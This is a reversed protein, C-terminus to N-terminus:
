IVKRPGVICCLKGDIFSGAAQPGHAGRRRECWREVALTTLIFAMLKFCDVPCVRFIICRSTHLLPERRAAHLVAIGYSKVQFANQLAESPVPSDRQATQAQAQGASGISNLKLAAITEQLKTCERRLVAAEEVKHMYATEMYKTSKKHEEDAANQQAAAAQVAQLQAHRTQAGILAKLEQAVRAAKEAASKPSTAVTTFNITTAESKLSPPLSADAEVPTFPRSPILMGEMTIHQRQSHPPSALAASQKLIPGLIHRTSLDNSNDNVM